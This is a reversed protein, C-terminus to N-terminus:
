GFEINHLEGLGAASHSASAHRPWHRPTSNIGKSGRDPKKNERFPLLKITPSLLSNVHQNKTWPHTSTPTAGLLTFLDRQSAPMSTTLIRSHPGRYFTNTMTTKEGGDTRTYIQTLSTSTSLPDHGQQKTFKCSKEATSNAFVVNYSYQVKHPRAFPFKSSIFKTFCPATASTSKPM